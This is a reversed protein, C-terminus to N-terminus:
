VEFIEGVRKNLLSLTPVDHSVEGIHSTRTKV